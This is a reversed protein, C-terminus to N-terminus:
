LANSGSIIENLENTIQEQRGQNYRLQLNQIMDHANRTANDMATMRAAHECANNDLFLTYLQAIINHTLLLKLLEEHKPELIMYEIDATAISAKEETLPVLQTVQIPQQIINKLHGTVVHISGIAGEQLLHIVEQALMSIQQFTPKGHDFNASKLEIVEINFARTNCERKLASQIKRGVTAVIVHQKKNKLQDGLARVEKMINTNYGGCLGRDTAIALIFAPADPNGAQLIPLTEAEYFSHAVHYVIDKLKHSYNLSHLVREQAKRLKATAVMKMASTIKQTSKVSKIRVRLDKLNNM